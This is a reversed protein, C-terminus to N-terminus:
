QKLGEHLVPIRRARAVPELTVTLVGNKLTARPSGTVAVPLEIRRGFRGRPREIRLYSCGPPADAASQGGVVLDDGELRVDLDAHAVGPLEVEVVLRSGDEWVDAQPEHSGGPAVAAPSSSPLLAKEFFENFRARLALLERLVHWEVGRM